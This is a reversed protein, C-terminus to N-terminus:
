TSLMRILLRSSTPISRRQACCSHCLIRCACSIIIMDNEVYLSVLPQKNVPLGQPQRLRYDITGAPPVSATTPHFSSSPM